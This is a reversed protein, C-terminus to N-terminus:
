DYVDLTATFPAQLNAQIQAGAGAVPTTFKITMPGNSSDTWLVHDGPAFNGNWVTAGDSSQDERFFPQSVQQSVTSSNGGNSSVTSPNAVTTNVPGASDWDIYDTEGLAGRSLVPVVPLASAADDLVLVAAATLGLVVLVFLSGSRITKM